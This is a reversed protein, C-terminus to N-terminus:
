RLYVPSAAKVTLSHTLPLFTFFFAISSVGIAYTLSFTLSELLVTSSHRMTLEFANFLLLRLPNFAM